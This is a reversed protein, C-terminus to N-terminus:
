FLGICCLLMRCSSSSSSSSSSSNSSSTPRDGSDDSPFGPGCLLGHLWSTSLVSKYSASPSEAVKEKKKRTKRKKKRRRIRGNMTRQKSHVSHLKLVYQILITCVKKFFITKRSTKEEEVVGYRIVM